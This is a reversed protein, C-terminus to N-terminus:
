WGGTAVDKAPQGFGGGPQVAVDGRRAAEPAFTMTDMQSAWPELLPGCSCAPGRRLSRGVLARLSDVLVDRRHQYIVSQNEVAADTHRLAVIAAIQIPTFMGYDYYTQDDWRPSDAYMFLFGIRWGAMNYGKSMTTFRVGLM